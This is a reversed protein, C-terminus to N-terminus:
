VSDEVPKWCQRHSSRSEWKGRGLYLSLSYRRIRKFNIVVKRTQNRRGTKGTVAVLLLEAVASIDDTATYIFWCSSM